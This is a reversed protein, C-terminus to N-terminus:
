TKRARSIVREWDHVKRRNHNCHFHWSAVSFRLSFKKLVSSVALVSKNVTHTTVVLDTPSSKYYLPQSYCQALYVTAWPAVRGLGNILLGRKISNMRIILSSHRTESVKPVHTERKKSQPNTFTQNSSRAQM